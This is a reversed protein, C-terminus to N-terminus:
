PSRWAPLILIASCGQRGHSQLEVEGGANRALTRALSLGLGSGEPKVSFFPDFAHALQYRDLGTGNDHVALRVWNRDGAIAVGIPLSVGKQLQSQVSNNLLNELISGLHSPDVFVLAQGMVPDLDISQGEPLPFRQILDSTFHGLDIVEPKGLEPHILKRVNRIVERIRSSEAAMIRLHGLIEATNKDAAGDITARVTEPPENNELKQEVPNHGVVILGAPGQGALKKEALQRHLDLAALPSQIEHSITRAAQGLLALREQSNLREQVLLLRRSLLTFALVLGCLLVLGAYLGLNRRHQEALITSPDYWLIIQRGAGADARALSGTGGGSVQRHYVVTTGEFWHGNPRQIVPNETVMGGAALLEGRGGLLIYGLLEDLTDPEQSNAIKNTVEVSVRYLEFSLREDDREVLSV